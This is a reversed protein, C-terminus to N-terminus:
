SQIAEILEEDKVEKGGEGVLPSASTKIREYRRESVLKKRDELMESVEKEDLAKALQKKFTETIAEVPLKSESIKKMVLLEKNAQDREEKLKKVEDTDVQKSEKGEAMGEAAPANWEKIQTECAQLRTSLATVAAMLEELTMTKVEEKQEFLGRVTAPDTVLDISKGSVISEIVEGGEPKKRYQAQADISFGIVEPMREAAEFLWDEKGLVMLDGKVRNEVLRLNTFKGVLEKTSRGKEDKHDLYAPKNEFVTCASQMARPTYERGGSNPSHNGLVSIGKIVKNARDITGGSLFAETLIKIEM